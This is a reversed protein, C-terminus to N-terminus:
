SRNRVPHVFYWDLLYQMLVESLVCVGLDDSTGDRRAMNRVCLERVKSSVEMLSMQEKEKTQSVFARAVVISRLPARTVNCKECLERAGALVAIEVPRLCM